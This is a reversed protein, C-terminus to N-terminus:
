QLSIINRIIFLWVAKVQISHDYLYLAIPRIEKTKM